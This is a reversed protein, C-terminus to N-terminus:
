LHFTEGTKLASLKDLLHTKLLHYAEKGTCHGSIFHPIGLAQFMQGLKNLYQVHEEKNAEFHSFHFGGIVAFLQGNSQKMAANVIQEIGKHSCGSFLFTKGEEKVLLYLEDDFPDQVLEGNEKSFLYPDDIVQTRRQVQGFIRCTDDIVLDDEVFIFRDDLLPISLGINKVVGDKVKIHDDFINKSVYIKAISNVQMFAELGGVHDMHGHSLVLMDVEKIEVNMKDANNLFTDDPGLDFLIKHNKTEIYLSLGHRTELNSNCTRNEVLTKIRM